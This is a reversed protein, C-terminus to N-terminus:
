DWSRGEHPSSLPISHFIFVFYCGARHFCLAHSELPFVSHLVHGRATGTEPPSVHVAEATGPAALM